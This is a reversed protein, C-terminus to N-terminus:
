MVPSVLVLPPLVECELEFRALDVWRRFRGNAVLATGEDLVLHDGILVFGPARQMSVVDDLSLAGIDGIAVIRADLGGAVQGDMQLRVQQAGAVRCGIDGGLGGVLQIALVLCQTADLREEGIGLPVARSVPELLNGHENLAGPVGVRKKALPSDGKPSLPIARALM